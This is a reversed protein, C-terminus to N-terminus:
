EPQEEVHDSPLRHDSSGAVGYMPACTRVRAMGRPVNKRPGAPRTSRVSGAASVGAGGELPGALAAGTRGPARARPGPGRGAGPRCRRPTVVPGLRELERHQGQDRGPQEHGPGRPASRDPGAPPPAPRQGGGAGRAGASSARTPAARPRCPPRAAGPRRRGTASRPSAAPPRSHCAQDDAPTTRHSSHTVDGGSTGRSWGATRMARHATLMHVM